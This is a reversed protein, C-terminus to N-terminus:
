PLSGMKLSGVAQGNLFDVIMLHTSLGLSLAGASAPKFLSASSNRHRISDAITIRCTRACRHDFHHLHNFQDGRLCWPEYVELTTLLESSAISIM